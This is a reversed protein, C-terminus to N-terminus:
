GVGSITVKSMAVPPLHYTPTAIYTRVYIPYKLFM